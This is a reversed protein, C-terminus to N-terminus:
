RKARASISEHSLCFGAVVRRSAGTAHCKGGQLPRETPRCAVTMACAFVCALRADSIFPRAFSRPLDGEPVVAYSISKQHSPKIDWFDCILSLSTVFV